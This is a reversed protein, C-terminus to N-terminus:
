LRYVGESGGIRLITGNYEGCPFQFVLDDYHCAYRGKDPQVIFAM